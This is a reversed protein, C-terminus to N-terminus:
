GDCKILEIKIWYHVICLEKTQTGYGGLRMTLLDAASCYQATECGVKKESAAFLLGTHM